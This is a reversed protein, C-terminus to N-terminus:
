VIFGGSVIMIGACNQKHIIEVYFVSVERVLWVLLAFLPNISQLVMQRSKVIKAASLM